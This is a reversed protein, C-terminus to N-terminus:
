SKPTKSEGTLWLGISAAIMGAVAGCVVHTVLLEKHERQRPVGVAFGLVGGAITLIAFAFMRM